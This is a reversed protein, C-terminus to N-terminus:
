TVTTIISASIVSLNNLLLAVKIGGGTKDPEGAKEKTFDKSLSKSSTYLSAKFVPM